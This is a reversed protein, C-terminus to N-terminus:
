PPADTEARLLLILDVNSRSGTKEYVHSIHTKVTKVSIFLREATEKYSFGRAIFSAVEWERPTLGHSEAFATGREVDTNGPPTLLRYLANRITRAITANLVCYLALFLGLRLWRGSTDGRAEHSFAAALSMLVGLIAGLGSVRELEALVAIPEGGGGAPRKGTFACALAKAVTGAPWIALSCALPLLLSVAVPAIFAVAPDSSLLPFLVATAALVFVEIFLLLKAM